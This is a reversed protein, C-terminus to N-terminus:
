EVPAIFEYYAVKYASLYILRLYIDGTLKYGRELIQNRCSEFDDYTEGTYCKIISYVCKRRPIIQMRDELEEPVETLELDNGLTFAYNFFNQRNAQNRLDGYKKEIYDDKEMVFTFKPVYKRTLTMVDEMSEMLSSKIPIYLMEPVEKIVVEGDSEIARRYSVKYDEVMVQLNKLDEIQREIENAQITIMKEAEEISSDNVLEKIRDLPMGMQKLRMVYEMCIFDERTYIRYGNESVTQPHLIGIKDYYRITDRTVNFYTALEGVQYTKNKAM